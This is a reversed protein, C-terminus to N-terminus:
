PALRVAQLNWFQNGLPSSVIIPPWNTEPQWPGELSSAFSAQLRFNGPPLPVGPTNYSVENSFTSELGAGTIDTAAFFYTTAFALNSISLSTVNGAFLANTYQGSAMGYYVYYGAISPDPNSDWALTVSPPTNTRRTVFVQAQAQSQGAGGTIQPSALMPRITLASPSPPTPPLTPPVPAFTTQKPATSCGFSLCALLLLSAINHKM